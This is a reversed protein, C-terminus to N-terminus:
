QRRNKRGGEGSKAERRMGCRKRKKRKRSRWKERRKRRRERRISKDVTKM